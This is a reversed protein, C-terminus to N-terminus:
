CSTSRGWGGVMCRCCGLALALAVGTGRRIRAGGRCGSGLRWPGSGQCAGAPSATGSPSCAGEAAAGAPTGELLARPATLPRGAVGARTRCFSRRCPLGGTAALGAAAAAPPAPCADPALWTNCSAALSESDSRRRSHSVLPSGEYPVL